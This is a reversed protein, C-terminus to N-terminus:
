PKSAAHPRGRGCRPCHVRSDPVNTEFVLGCGPCRRWWTTPEALPTDPPGEAVEPPAAERPRSDEFSLVVLGAVLPNVALDVPIWPVPGRATFTVGEDGATKTLRVPGIHRAILGAPPLMAPDYYERAKKAWDWGGLSLVPVAANYLDQMARGIEIRGSSAREAPEARREALLYNAVARPSPGLVFLDGSSAWSPAFASRSGPRVLSRVAAGAEARRIEYRPPEGGDAPGALAAAAADLAEAIRGADAARQVFVLRELAGTPAGGVRGWVVLRGDGALSVPQMGDGPAFPATLRGFRATAEPRDGIAALWEVLAGAARLEVEPDGRWELAADADPPLPPAGAPSPARRAALLGAPRGATRLYITSVFDNGAVSVRFGVSRVGSLGAADLLKMYLGDRTELLPVAM